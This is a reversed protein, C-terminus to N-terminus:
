SVGPEPPASGPTPDARARAALAERLLRSLELQAEGPGLDTDDDPSRRRSRIKKLEWIPMAEKLQDVLAEHEIRLDALVEGMGALAYLAVELLDDDGPPALAVEPVSDDPVPPVLDALDGVVRVGSAAVEEVMRVSREHVWAVQTRALRLKPEEAARGTLVLRSLANKFAWRYKLWDLHEVRGNVRRLLEASYAGLSANSQPPQVLTTPDIGLVSVFRNGVVAFDAGSPPVTVLTIQELPLNVCLRQIIGTLDQRRWFRKAEKDDSEQTLAEVYDSYTITHGNRVGTQWQSPIARALDRATVIVQTEAPGLAEVLNGMRTPRSMALLENSMLADGNHASLAKEMTAWAGSLRPRDRKTGLLDDIALFNNAAQTWLLGADALRDSNYDCLEQLYSTASKMTGVHLFVRRAM